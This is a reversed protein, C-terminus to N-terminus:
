QELKQDKLLAWEPAKKPRALEKAMQQESEHATKPRVLKRAM